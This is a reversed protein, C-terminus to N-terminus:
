YSSYYQKPTDARSDLAIRNKSVETIMFGSFLDKRRREDERVREVEDLLRRMQENTKEILGEKEEIKMELEDGKKKFHQYEM